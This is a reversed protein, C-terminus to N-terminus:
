ARNHLDGPELKILVGRLPILVHLVIDGIFALNIEVACQDGHTFACSVRLDLNFM